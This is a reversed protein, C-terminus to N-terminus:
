KRHREANPCTAFHSTHMRKEPNAEQIARGLASTAVIAVTPDGGLLYLNGDPSSRDVPM